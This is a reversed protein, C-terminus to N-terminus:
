RYRNWVRSKYQVLLYNALLQIDKHTNQIENWKRMAGPGFEWHGDTWCCVDRLPELDERFQDKTPAGSQRRRDAIADMVFGLSVIGAGHMLRSRKPPLGWAPRYVQAVAAWYNKLTELMRETDGKKEDESRFRFLVGDSLSNEIMKILSNDKIVGSIVTPTRIMGRLPSDDDLNLRDLLMNPFRRRQLMTPLRAETSPLLEYVLGKPLPKTSNVLIFQERQEQESEAIFGIVCVPFRSIRAERIAAARQQGDVIWGPAHNEDVPVHLFGPRSFGSRDHSHSVSEFRVRKDFAVVIANPIMANGSELYNRIESIHSLVEPRQYGLIRKNQDRAIRSIAAVKPLLKGDMAFSYLVRGKSQRVELAPLRLIESSKM